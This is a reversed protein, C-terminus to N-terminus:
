IIETETIEETKLMLKKGDANLAIKLEPHLFDIDRPIVNFQTNEIISLNWKKVEDTKKVCHILIENKKFQPTVFFWTHIKTNGLRKKLDNEYLKLKNLDKTIKDRQKEYLEDASYYDSPCYCQFAKGDKTFGELGYDGPSAVIELYFESEYKQLFVIKCIRQWSDGDFTGYETQIM